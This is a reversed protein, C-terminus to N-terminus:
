TRSRSYAVSLICAFVAMFGYTFIGTTPAHELQTLVIVFSGAFFMCWAGIAALAWGTLRHRPHFTGYLALAGFIALAWGWTAPAGPVTLAVAFSPGRWRDTGGVIIAGGQLIAFTALLRALSQVVWQALDPQLRREPM